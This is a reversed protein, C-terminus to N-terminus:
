DDVVPDFRRLRLTVGDTDALSGEIEKRYGEVEACGHCIVATAVYPPVDVTRGTKPDAWEEPLTGCRGCVRNSFAVVAM